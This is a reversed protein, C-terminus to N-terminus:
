ATLQAANATYLLHVFILAAFLTYDTRILQRPSALDNRQKYIILPSDAYSFHILLIILTPILAFRRTYKQSTLNSHRAHM